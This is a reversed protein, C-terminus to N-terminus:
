DKLVLEYTIGSDLTAGIGVFDAFTVTLPLHNKFHLTLQRAKVTVSILKEVGDAVINGKVSGDCRTIDDLVQVKLLACVDDNNDRVDMRKATLDTLKAGFSQVTYENHRVDGRQSPSHRDAVAVHDVTNLVTTPMFTNYSDSPSKKITYKTNRCIEVSGLNPCDWFAGNGLYRVSDTMAVSRLSSCGSFGIHEVSRLSLPFVVSELNAAGYFASNGVSKVGEPIAYDRDPKACPYQLLIGYRKNILVGDVSQFVTNSADVMIQRLSQCNRWPGMKIIEVSKPVYFTTLRPCNMFVFSDIVKLQSTNPIRVEALNKCNECMSYSLNKLSNPISIWELAPLREFAGQGVSDIGESIIIRKLNKTKEKSHYSFAFSSIVKVLYKQGNWTVTSPITLQEKNYDRSSEVSVTLGDPLVKYNLMGGEETKCAFVIGGDKVASHPVSEQSCRPSASLPSSIALALM